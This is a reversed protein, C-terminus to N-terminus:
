AAIRMIAHEAKRVPQRGCGGLAISWVENEKKLFHLPEPLFDGRSAQSPAFNSRINSM